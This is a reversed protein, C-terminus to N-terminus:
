SLRKTLWVLVENLNRADVKDLPVTVSTSHVETPAPLLSSRVSAFEAMEHETLWGKKTRLVM